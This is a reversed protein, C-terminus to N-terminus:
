LLRRKRVRRVKLAYLPLAIALFLFVGSAWASPHAIRNREAHFWVATGAGGAIVIAVLFGPSSFAGVV